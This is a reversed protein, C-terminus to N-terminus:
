SAVRLRVGGGAAPERRRGSMWSAALAGLTAGATDTVADMGEMSRGPIFAQHTEDATGFAALTGAIVLARLLSFAPRGPWRIALYLLFGEVGYLFLHVMKDFSPIASLVPVSPPSPWSTLTLLFIGWVLAWRRALPLPLYLFSLPSAPSVRSEAV